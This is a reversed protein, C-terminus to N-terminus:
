IAVLTVMAVKRVKSVMLSRLLMLWLCNFHVTRSMRRVVRAVVVIILSM